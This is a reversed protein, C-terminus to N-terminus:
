LVLIPMGGETAPALPKGVLIEYLVHCKFSVVLYLTVERLNGNAQSRRFFNLGIRVTLDEFRLGDVITRVLWLTITEEAFANETRRLIVFAVASFILADTIFANDAVTATHLDSFLFHTTLTGSVDLQNHRHGM